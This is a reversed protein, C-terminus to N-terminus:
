NNDKKESYCFNEVSKSFHKIIMKRLQRTTLGFYRAKCCCSFQFIIISKFLNSIPDKSVTTLLPKSTFVITRPNTAYYTKSVMLNIKTELVESNKNILPLKLTVVCKEPGLTKRKNLYKWFYISQKKVLHQIGM